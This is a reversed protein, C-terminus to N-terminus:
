LGMRGRIRDLLRQQSQLIETIETLKDLVWKDHKSKKPEVEKPKILKKKDTM